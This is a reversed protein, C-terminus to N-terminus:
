RWCWRVSGPQWPWRPSVARAVVAVGLPYGRVRDAAAARAGRKGRSRRGGAGHPSPADCQGDRRLDDAAGRTARSRASRLDVGRARTRDIRIDIARALRRAGCRSRRRPRAARASRRGCGAASGPGERRRLRSGPGLHCAFGQAQARWRLEEILRSKGIGPDGRIAVAVGAEAVRAVSDLVGALQRLESDASSPYVISRATGCRGCAISASPAEFGKVAKSASIRPM